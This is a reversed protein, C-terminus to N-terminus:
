RWFKSSDSIAYTLWVYKDTCGMHSEKNNHAEVLCDGVPDPSPFTAWDSIRLTRANEDTNYLMHSSVDWQKQQYNSKCREIVSIASAGQENAV